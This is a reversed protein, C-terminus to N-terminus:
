VIAVRMECLYLYAFMTSMEFRADFLCTTTSQFSFVFTDFLFYPFSTGICNQNIDFLLLYNVLLQFDVGDNNAILQTSVVVSLRLYVGVFLYDDDISNFYHFNSLFEIFFPGFIM